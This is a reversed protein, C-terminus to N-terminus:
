SCLLFVNDLEKDNIIKVSKPVNIYKECGLNEDFVIEKLGYPLKWKINGKTYKLYIENLMNPFLEINIEGDECYFDELYAPIEIQNIKNESCDLHILSLPLHLLENIDNYRCCLIKLGKPWCLLV